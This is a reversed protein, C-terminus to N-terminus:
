LSIPLVDSVDFPYYGLSLFWTGQLQSTATSGVAGGHQGTSVTTQEPHVRLYEMYFIVSFPKLFPKPYIM